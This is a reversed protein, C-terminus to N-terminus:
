QFTIFFKRTLINENNVFFSVKDQKKPPPINSMIDAESINMKSAETREEQSVANNDLKILNPLLKIIYLRYFKHDAIPNDWM